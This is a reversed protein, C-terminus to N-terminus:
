ISGSAKEWKMRMHCALGHTFHRIARASISSFIYCLWNNIFREEGFVASSGSRHKAKNAKTNSRAKMSYCKIVHRVINYLVKMNKERFLSVSFLSFCFYYKGSKLLFYKVAEISNLRPVAEIEVWNTLEPKSHSLNLNMFLWSLLPNLWNCSRM